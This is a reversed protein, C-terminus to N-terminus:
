ITKLEMLEVIYNLLEFVRNDEVYYKKENFEIETYASYRKHYTGISQLVISDPKFKNIQLIVADYYLQRDSVRTLDKEIIYKASDFAMHFLDLDTIENWDKEKSRIWGNLEFDHFFFLYLFAAYLAAWVGTSYHEHFKLLDLSEGILMSTLISTAVFILSAIIFRIRHNKLPERLLWSRLREVKTGIAIAGATFLLLFVVIFYMTM